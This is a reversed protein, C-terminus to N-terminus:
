KLRDSDILMRSLRLVDPIELQGARVVVALISYGISIMHLFMQRLVLHSKM